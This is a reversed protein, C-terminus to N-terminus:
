PATYGLELRWGGSTNDPEYAREHIPDPTTEITVDAPGGEATNIGV